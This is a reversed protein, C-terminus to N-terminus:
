SRSGFDVQAADPVTSRAPFRLRMSFFQLASIRPPFCAPGLFCPEEPSRWSAPETPIGGLPRLLPATLHNLHLFKPGETHVISVPRFRHEGFDTVTLFM